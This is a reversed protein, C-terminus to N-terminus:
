NSIVASSQNYAVIGSKTTSSFGSSLASSVVGTNYANEIKGVNYAVIGGCYGQSSKSISNVLATNYCNSILSNRNDNYGTIGGANPYKSSSSVEGINYSQKINGSYIGAIGGSYTDSLSINGVRTQIKGANYCNIINKDNHAVIGGVTEGQITGYNSCKEVNGRNLGVIGGIGEGSYTINSFNTCNYVIGTNYGVFVGVDIYKLITDIQFDKISLNQVIGNNSGILGVCDYGSNIKIGSITYGNGDIVGNFPNNFDGISIWFQGNNYFDGGIKFDDETFNIDATLYYNGNLNNRINNLEYKNSIPIFNEKNDLSYVSSYNNYSFVLIISLFIISIGKKLKM